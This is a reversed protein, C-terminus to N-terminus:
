TANGIQKIHYKHFVLECVLGNEYYRHFTGKLSDLTSKIITWGFGTKIEVEKQGNDKVKMFLTNEKEHLMIHLTPTPHNPFAYKISNTILENLIIGIQLASAIEIMANDVKMNIEIEKGTHLSRILMNVLDILYREFNMESLSEYRYLHEHILGISNVRTRSIILANKGEPDNLRRHQMALLSSIMQINNKVRHHVESLLTENEKNRKELQATRKRVKSELEETYVKQLKENLQLQEILNEQAKQKDKYVQSTRMAMGITFIFVDLLLGGQIVRNSEDVLHYTSVIQGAITTSMLVILGILFVRSIRDKLRYVRLLIIAM